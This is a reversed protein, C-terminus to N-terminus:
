GNDHLGRGERIEFFAHMVAFLTNAFTFSVFLGTTAFELNETVSALIILTTLVLLTLLFSIAATKLLHEMFLEDPIIRFYYAYGFFGFLMYLAPLGTFFGLSGLLGLLSLYGLPHIKGKKKM